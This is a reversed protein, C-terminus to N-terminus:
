TSPSKTTRPETEPASVSVSTLRLMAKPGRLACALPPAETLIEQVFGSYSEQATVTAVESTMLMSFVGEGFLVPVGASSSVVLILSLSIPAMEYASLVGVLDAITKASLEEANLVMITLSPQQEFSMGINGISSDGTLQLSHFTQLIAYYAIALGEVATRTEQDVRQSRDVVQFRSKRTFKSMLEHRFVNLQDIADSILDWAADTVRSTCAVISSGNKLAEFQLARPLFHDNLCKPPKPTTTKRCAYRFKNAFM